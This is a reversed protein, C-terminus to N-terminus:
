EAGAGFHRRRRRIVGCPMEAHGFCRHRLGGTSGADTGERQRLSTACRRRAACEAAAFPRFGKPQAACMDDIVMADAVRIMNYEQDPDRLKYVLGESKGIGAAIRKAGVAEIARDLAYEPTEPQVIKPM